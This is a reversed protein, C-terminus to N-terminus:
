NAPVAPIQSSVQTSPCQVPGNPDKGRPPGSRLELPPTLVPLLPRLGPASCFCLIIPICTSELKSRIMPKFFCFVTLKVWRKAVLIPFLCLCLVLQGDQFPTAFVKCSFEVVRCSRRSFITQFAFFRAPASDKPFDDSRPPANKRM